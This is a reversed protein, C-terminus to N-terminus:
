IGHVRLYQDQNRQESCFNHNSRQDPGICMTSHHMVQTETSDTVSHWFHHVLRQYHPMLLIKVCDYGTRAHVMSNYLECHCTIHVAKWYQKLTCCHAEGSEAREDNVMGHEGEQQIKLAQMRVDAPSDTAKSTRYATFDDNTARFVQSYDAWSNLTSTTHTRKQVVLGWYVLSRIRSFARQFVAQHHPLSNQLAASFPQYIIRDFNPIQKISWQWIQRPVKGWHYFDPYWPICAWIEEFLM